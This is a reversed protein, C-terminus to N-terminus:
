FLHPFFLLLKVITFVINFIFIFHFHRCAFPNETPQLVSYFTLVWYPNRLWLVNMEYQLLLFIANALKGGGLTVPEISIFGIKIIIRQCCICAFWFCSAALLWRQWFHSSSLVKNCYMFQIRTAGGRLVFAISFVKMPWVMEIYVGNPTQTHQRRKAHIHIHLPFCACLLRALARAFHHQEATRIWKGAVEDNSKQCRMM